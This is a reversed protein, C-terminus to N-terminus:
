GFKDSGKGDDPPAEGPPVFLEIEDGVGRLAHKGLSHWDGDLHRAGEESVLFNTGLLKTMGEIRAAENAAAGIVSFEIREPTGINGYMVDGLHLGIGFGLEREGAAAREENVKAMRGVADQAAAVAQACTDAYSAKELDVPFIALAADGIYRLVEGGGDLIAGGMCEFYVNLLGLFEARTMSDALPTSDRLDCFWIVAHIDEGDGRRIKGALVKEGSQHGLYADLLNRSIRRLAMVEALRSLAPRVRRLAALEAATFGGPQKTSYSAAHIQGDTFDLPQIIYDTIGDERLGALMTFDDPCAPDYLPRHIEEASEVVRAVPNKKYEESDLVSYPAEGVDVETAGERWYFGRGMVNPHLTTVFVASRALPLGCEVLRECLRLLIDQSLPAGPAGAVLWDVVPEIDIGNAETAEAM